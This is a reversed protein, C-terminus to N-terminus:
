KAGGFIREWAGEPLQFYKGRTSNDIAEQIEENDAKGDCRIHCPNKHMARRLDAGDKEGPIVTIDM